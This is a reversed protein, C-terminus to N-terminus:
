RMTGRCLLAIVSIGAERMVEVQYNIINQLPSAVVIGRQKRKTQNESGRVVGLSFNEWFGYSSGGCCGKAGTCEFCRLITRVWSGM